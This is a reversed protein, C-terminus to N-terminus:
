ICGSRNLRERSRKALCLLKVIAKSRRRCGCCRNVSQGGFITKIECPNYATNRPIGNKQIAANERSKILLSITREYAHTLLLPLILLLLVLIWSHRTGCQDNKQARKRERWKKWREGDGHEKEEGAAMTTPFSISVNGLTRIIIRRKKERKEEM